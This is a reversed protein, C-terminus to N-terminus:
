HESASKIKNVMVEPRSEEEYGWAPVRPQYHGEFRPKANKGLERETGERGHWKENRPDVHYNPFYYVGIECKKSM